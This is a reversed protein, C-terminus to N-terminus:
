NFNEEIFVKLIEKSEIEESIEIFYDLQWKQSKTAQKNTTEDWIPYVRFARKGEKKSTSIIGQQVLTEKPITFLGERKNRQVKVMFFDFDDLDKHFPEILGNERRKWFTVFQGNKTPTIKAKRYIIKSNKLKFIAAQYEESEKEEHYDEIKLNNKEFIASQIKNLEKFM